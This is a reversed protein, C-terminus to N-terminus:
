SSGTAEGELRLLHQVSKHLLGHACCLLLMAPIAVALGSETDILVESIGSALAEMSHRDGQSSLSAFSRIMGMVTGLLGALPAAAIMAVIPIRQQRFAEELDERARRLEV